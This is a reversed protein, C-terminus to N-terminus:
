SIWTEHMEGGIEKLYEPVSVSKTCWGERPGTGWGEKKEEYLTPSGYEIGKWEAPDILSVGTVPIHGKGLATEKYFSVMKLFLHPLIRQSAYHMPVLGFQPSYYTQSNGHRCTLLSFFLHALKARKCFILFFFFVINEIHDGIHIETQPSFPWLFWKLFVVIFETILLCCAKQNIANM